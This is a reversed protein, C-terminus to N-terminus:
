DRMFEYWRYHTSNVAESCCSVGGVTCICYCFGRVSRVKRESLGSYIM